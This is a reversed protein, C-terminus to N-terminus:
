LLMKPLMKFGLYALLIIIFGINILVSIGYWQILYGSVLLFLGTLLITTTYLYSDFRARIQKTLNKHSNANTLIINIRINFFLLGLGMFMCYSNLFKISVYLLVLGAIIFIFSLPLVRMNTRTLIKGALSQLLLSMIFILGLLYSNDKISPIMSAVVQWYQILLQYYISVFLLPIIFPSLQFFKRIILKKEYSRRYARVQGKKHKHYNSCQTPLLLLGELTLLVMLLSTILFIYKKLYEYAVSGIGAFLAMGLYSLNNYQGLINEFHKNKEVQAYEDLLYANSISNYIVLAIANFLEAIYFCLVNTYYGGLFLIFLWAASSIMATLYIAKRNFKDMFNAVSLSFCLTVVAQLAKVYAISDLGLGSNFMYIVSVAGTVMRLSSFLSMSFLINHYSKMILKM